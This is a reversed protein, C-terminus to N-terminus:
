GERLKQMRAADRRGKSFNDVAVKAFPDPDRQKTRTAAVVHRSIGRRAAEAVQKEFEEVQEPMMARVRRAHQRECEKKIPCGNCFTADRREGVLIGAREDTRAYFGSGYLYLGKCERKKPDLPPQEVHLVTLSM